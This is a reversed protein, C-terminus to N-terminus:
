EGKDEDVVEIGNPITLSTEQQGNVYKSHIKVNGFPTPYEIDIWELDGLKPSIRLKKCGPELIEIGGIQEMLFPTPGSSWGHCLSHRFGTYCHKGFDGHIDKMGEPTIEDIRAANEMWSIDFDEWFTTAGMKIMGGWYKRIINLAETYEGLRAKALLIYYGMFCSMGEASEGRLVDYAFTSDRGSLVTLASMRKNSAKDISEGQLKEVYSECKDALTNEGLIKFIKGAKEISMCLISKMGELESETERSSWDVFGEMYTTCKTVDTIWKFIHETLEKLYGLQEKLYSLNGWQMYWDYHIIIWWASYTAIGNMWKDPSTGNKTFDLSNTVCKEKGFVTRITSVEPHMDGVWVLRDRKVGDWVFEDMNLSVTYAGMKWIDNLLSDNCEFKGLYSVDKAHSEAKIVKIWVDADIAEIKVFRFGTGGYRCTSLGSVDIVTDRVTHANTANKYGITSLAEMVSEGFVIRVKATDMKESLKQVTLAIGGKLEKGFDLLVFGGCKIIACDDYNFDAQLPKEKLLKEAYETKDASVIRLPMLYKNM